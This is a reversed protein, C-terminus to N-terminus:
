IRDLAQALDAWIDEMDEIGTSFRLLNDKIGLKARMEPGQVAPLWIHHWLSM